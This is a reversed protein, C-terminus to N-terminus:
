RSKWSWASCNKSQGVRCTLRGSGDLGPFLASLAADDDLGRARALRLDRERDNGAVTDRRQDHGREAIEHILPLPPDLL